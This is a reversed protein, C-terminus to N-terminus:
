PTVSGTLIEPAGDTILITHEYHASPLGDETVVTWGDALVRVRERGYNVMPEVAITMGSFLRPDPHTGTVYNPVEPDEWVKSGIGHGTFARVVSFGNAEVHRQVVRSIDSVHNGKVAMKIGEYFSQKTVAILRELEPPIEGVAVTIATDGHYGGVCAGVDIKVIDGSKLRRKGPVGHIVEENVSICAAAPFGNTPFSASAGHKRLTDRVVMEIEATTVGPAVAAAAADRVAATVRGAQRMLEIERPSKITILGM